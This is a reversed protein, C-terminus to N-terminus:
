NSLNSRFCLETTRATYGANPCENHIFGGYFLAVVPVDNLGVGEQRCSKCKFQSCTRIACRALLFCRLKYKLNPGLFYHQLPPM